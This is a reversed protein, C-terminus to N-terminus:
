FPKECTNGPITTHRACRGRMMRIKANKSANNSKHIVGQHITGAIGQTTSKVRPKLGFVGIAEGIEGAPESMKSTITKIQNQITQKNSNSLIVRNTHLLKQLINIKNRSITTTNVKKQAEDIVKEIAQRVLKAKESKKFKGSPRQPETSPPPPRSQFLPNNSM